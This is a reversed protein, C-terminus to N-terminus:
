ASGKSEEGAERGGESRREKGTEKGGNNTGDNDKRRKAGHRSTRAGDKRASVTTRRGESRERESDSMIRADGGRANGM